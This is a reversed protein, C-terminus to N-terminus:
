DQRRHLRYRVASTLRYLSSTTQSIFNKPQPRKVQNKESKMTKMRAFVLTAEAATELVTLSAEGKVVAVKEVVVSPEMVAVVM